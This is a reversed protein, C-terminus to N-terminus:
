SSYFIIYEQTHNRESDCHMFGRYLMSYGSINVHSILNMNIETFFRFRHMNRFDVM